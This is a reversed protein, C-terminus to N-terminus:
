YSFIVYISSSVQQFHEGGKGVLVCKGRRTAASGWGAVGEVGVCGVAGIKWRLQSLYVGGRCRERGWNGRGTVKLMSERPKPM